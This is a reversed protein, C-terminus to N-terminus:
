LAQHLCLVIKKLDKFFHLRKLKCAHLSNGKQFDQNFFRDFVPVNKHKKKKAHNWYTGQAQVHAVVLM